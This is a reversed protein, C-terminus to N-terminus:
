WRRNACRLVYLAVTMGAVFASIPVGWGFLLVLVLGILPAGVLLATVLRGVSLGGPGPQGLESM